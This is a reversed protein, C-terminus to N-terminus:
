LGQIVLIKMMEGIRGLVKKSLKGKAKVGIAWDGLFNVQKDWLPSTSLEVGKKTLTLKEKKRIVFVHKISFIYSFLFISEKLITTQKVNM